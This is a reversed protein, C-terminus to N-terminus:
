NQCKSAGGFDVYLGDIIKSKERGANRENLKNNRCTKQKKKKACFNKVKDIARDLSQSDISQLTQKQKDTTKSVNSGKTKSDGLKFDRSVLNSEQIKLESEHGSHEYHKKQSSRGESNEKFTNQKRLIVFKTKMSQIPQMEYILSNPFFIDQKEILKPRAVLDYHRTPSVGESKNSTSKFIFNLHDAQNSHSEVEISKNQHHKYESIFKQVDKNNNSLMKNILMVKSCLSDRTPLSQKSPQRGKKENVMRVAKKISNMGEHSTMQTGAANISGIIKGLSSGSEISCRNQAQRNLRSQGSYLNQQNKLKQQKPIPMFNYSKIMKRTQDTLQGKKNLSAKNWNEQTDGALVSQHQYRNPYKKSTQQYPSCAFKKSKVDITSPSTYRPFEPQMKRRDFFQMQTGNGVKGAPIQLHDNLHAQSPFMNNTGTKSMQTKIRQTSPDKTLMLDCRANFHLREDNFHDAYENTPEITISEQIRVTEKSRSDSRQPDFMYENNALCHM